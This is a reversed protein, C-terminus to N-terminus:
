EGLYKDHYRVCERCTMFCVKRFKEGFDKFRAHFKNEQFNHVFDYEYLGFPCKCIEGGEKILFTYRSCPKSCYTGISSYFGPEFLKRDIPVISDDTMDSYKAVKHAINADSLIKSAKEVNKNTHWKDYSIAVVIGPHKKCIEVFKESIYPFAAWDGNSTLRVTVGEALIDVITYWDPNLFFEGGMIGIYHISNQEIFIRVKNATEIDMMDTKQPSCEFACHFCSQTCRTTIRVIPHLVRHCTDKSNCTTCDCNQKGNCSPDICFSCRSM